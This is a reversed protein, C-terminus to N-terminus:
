ENCECLMCGDAIKFGIIGCDIDCAFTDCNSGSLETPEGATPETTARKESPSATTATADRNGSAPKRRVDPEASIPKGPTPATTSTKARDGSFTVNVRPQSWMPRDVVRGVPLSPRVIPIARMQCIFGLKTQRQYFFSSRDSFCNYDHWNGLTDMAVCDGATTKDWQYWPGKNIAWRQYVLPSGDAWVYVGDNVGFSERDHLGIWVHYYYRLDVQLVRTLVTEIDRRTVSALTGGYYRCTNSAELYTSLTNTFFEYCYGSGPHVILKGGYFNQRQCRYQVPAAQAGVYLAAAALFVGLSCMAKCTQYRARRRTSQVAGPQNHHRFIVRESQCLCSVSKVSPCTVSYNETSSAAKKATRTLRVEEQCESMRRVSDPQQPDSDKRRESTVERLGRQSCIPRRQDCAPVGATVRM